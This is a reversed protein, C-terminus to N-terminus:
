PLGWFAPEGKFDSISCLDLCLGELGELVRFVVLFPREAEWPGRWSGGLGFRATLYQKWQESGGLWRLGRM